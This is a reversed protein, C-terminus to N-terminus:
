QCEIPMVSQGFIALPPSVISSASLHQRRNMLQLSRRESVERQRRCTRARVAEAKANERAAALAAGRKSKEIDATAKLKRDSLAAAARADGLSLRDLAAQKMETRRVSDAAAVMAVIVKAKASVTAAKQQRQGVVQSRRAAASFSAEQLRDRRQSKSAFEAERHAQVRVDAVFAAQKRKVLTFHRRIAAESMRVEAALRAFDTATAQVRRVAAAREIVRAAKRQILSLHEKRRSEAAAMKSALAHAMASQRLTNSLAVDHRARAFVTRAQLFAARRSVAAAVKSTVRRAAVVSAMASSTRSRQVVLKVRMQHRRARAVKLDMIAKYRVEHLGERRIMAELKAVQAAAVRDRAAAGMLNRADCRARIVLLSDERRTSANQLRAVLALARKEVASAAEAAKVAAIRQARRVQHRLVGRLKELLVSRRQSAAALKRELNAKRLRSTSEESMRLSMVAHKRHADTQQLALVKAEVASKRLEEARALSAQFAVLRSPSSRQQHRPSMMSASATTSITTSRPSSVGSISNTPSLSESTPSSPPSPLCLGFATANIPRTRNERRRMAAALKKEIAKQKKFKAMEDAYRQAAIASSVSRCHLGAKTARRTMSEQRSDEAQRMRQRCKTDLKSARVSEQKSASIRAKRVRDGHIKAKQVRSMNLADRKAGALAVSRDIKKPSEHNKDLRVKLSTPVKCPSMSPKSTTSGNFSVQFAISQAMKGLDPITEFQSQRTSVIHLM